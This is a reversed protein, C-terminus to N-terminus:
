MKSWKVMYRANLDAMIEKEEEKAESLLTAGDFTMQGGAGPISGYKSRVRGVITKAYALALRRIYNFADSAMDLDVNNSKYKVGIIHDRIPTPHIRFRRSDTIEWSGWVGYIKELMDRSALYSWFTVPSEYIDVALDTALLYFDSFLMQNVNGMSGLFAPKYHVEYIAIADTPWDYEAQLGTTITYAYLDKGAYRGVMNIASQICQTLQEDNIEIKVTPYGLMNLVWRKIEDYKTTMDPSPAKKMQQMINTDVPSPSHWYSTNPEGRAATPGYHNALKEIDSM